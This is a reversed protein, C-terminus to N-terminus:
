RQQAIAAATTTATNVAATTSSSSSLSLPQDSRTSSTRRPRHEVPPDLYWEILDARSMRLLRSPYPFLICNLFDCIKIECERLKETSIKWDITPDGIREPDSLKLAVFFCAKVWVVDSGLDGKIRSFIDLAIIRTSSHVASYRLFFKIYDESVAHRQTHFRVTGRVPNKNYKQLCPLTDLLERANPRMNPNVVLMARIVEPILSPDKWKGMVIQPLNGEEVDRVLDNALDEFASPLKQGMHLAFLALNIVYGHEGEDKSQDPMLSRNFWLEYLNCALAWIDSTSVPGRNRGFFEPGRFVLCYMPGPRTETSLRHALSFDGICARTVRQKEDLWIFYNDLKADGHLIQESELFAYGKLLESAIFNLEEESDVRYQFLNEDAPKMFIYTTSKKVVIREAYMLNPHRLTRMIDIEGVSVLGRREDADIEKLAFYEGESTQMLSVRGYSGKGLNKRVKM